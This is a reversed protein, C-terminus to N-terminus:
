EDDWGMFAAVDVPQSPARLFAELQRRQREVEAVREVKRRVIGLRRASAIGDVRTRRAGALSALAQVNPGDVVQAPHRWGTRRRELRDLHKSAKVAVPGLDDDRDEPRVGWVEAVEALGRGAPGHGLAEILPELLDPRESAVLELLGAVFFHRGQRELLIGRIDFPSEM